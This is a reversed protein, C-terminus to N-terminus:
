GNGLHRTDADLDYDGAAGYNGMTVMELAAGFFFADKKYMLNASLTNAAELAGLGNQDLQYMANATFGDFNKTSFMIVDELRQDWGMMTQRADGIEDYFFTTKRGLTKYPTDHIGFLVSGLEHKIGVYSNRTALTNNGKQAINIGNEFKWFMSFDENLESDGKVGFRSSNSAMVIQSEDSDSMFNTSLHIKGYVQYDGALASGTILAIMLVMMTILKANFM